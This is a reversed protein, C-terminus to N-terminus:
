DWNSDGQLSKLIYDLVNRYQNEAGKLGAVNIMIAEKALPVNVCWASVMDGKEPTEVLFLDLTLSKWHTQEIGALVAYPSSKHIEKKFKEIDDVSPKDKRPPLTERLRDIAVTIKVPENKSALVFSHITRSAPAHNPNKIFGVPLEFRFGFKPDIVTQSNEFVQPHSNLQVLTVPNSRGAVGWFIPLDVGFVPALIGANLLLGAIAIFIVIIGRGWLGRLLGAFASLLGAWALVMATGALVPMYGSKPSAIIAIAIYLGIAIVPAVISFVALKKGYASTIIVAPIIVPKIPQNM